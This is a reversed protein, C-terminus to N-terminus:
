CFFQADQVRASESTKFDGFSPPESVQLRSPHLSKVPSRVNRLVGDCFIQGVVRGRPRVPPTNDRIAGPAFLAEVSRKFFAALRNQAYPTVPRKGRFVLSVLALSLGTGDAIERFTYTRTEAGVQIRSRVGKPM